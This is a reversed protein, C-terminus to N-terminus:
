GYLLPVQYINIILNVCDFILEWVVLRNIHPVSCEHGCIFLNTTVYTPLMCTGANVFSQEPLWPRNGIKYGLDQVVRKLESSSSVKNTPDTKICGKEWCCVERERGLQFQSFTAVVGIALYKWMSTLWRDSSYPSHAYQRGQILIRNRRSISSQLIDNTYKWDNSGREFVTHRTVCNRGM